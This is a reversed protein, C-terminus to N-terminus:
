CDDKGDLCYRTWWAKNMKGPSDTLPLGLYKYSFQGQGVHFQSLIAPIDIGNCQIPFIELKQVNVALGIAKGFQQLLHYM